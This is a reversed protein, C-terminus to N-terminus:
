THVHEGLKAAAVGVTQFVRKQVKAIKRRHKKIAM